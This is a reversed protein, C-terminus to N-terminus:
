MVPEHVKNPTFNSSLKPLLIIEVYWNIFLHFVNAAKEARKVVIASTNLKIKQETAKKKLLYPSGSLSLFSFAISKATEALLGM